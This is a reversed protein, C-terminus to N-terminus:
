KGKMGSTFTTWPETKMDRLLGKMWDYEPHAALFQDAIFDTACQHGGAAWFQMMGAMPSDIVKSQVTGAPFYKGWDASLGRPSRENCGCLSREDPGQKKEVVDFGDSEFRKAMEIDISGKHKSM